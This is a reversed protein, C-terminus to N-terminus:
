PYSSNLAIESAKDLALNLNQITRKSLNLEIDVLLNCILFSFPCVKNCISQSLLFSSVFLSKISFIYVM